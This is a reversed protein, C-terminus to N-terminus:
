TINADLCDVLRSRWHVLREPEIALRGTSWAGFSYLLLTAADQLDAIRVWEELDSYYDDMLGLKSTMEGKALLSAVALEYIAVRRMVRPTDAEIYRELRTMWFLADQRADDHTTAWRLGCRIEVLGAQSFPMPTRDKWRKLSEKYFDPDGASQPFLEGPTRLYEQAIWFTDRDGLLEAIAEGDFIQLVVNKHASARDQLQRRKSIALNAECFYVIEDVAGTNVITVVDSQIKREIEEQLSCGFAVKRSGSSRKSFESGAGRHPLVFASFTEFDRGGDGGASVPGTAPLINSYVRLRTLHRCLHEFDHHANRAKLEHLHFRIVSILQAATPM